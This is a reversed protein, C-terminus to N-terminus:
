GNYLGTFVLIVIIVLEAFIISDQVDETDQQNWDNKQKKM